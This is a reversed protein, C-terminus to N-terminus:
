WSNLTHPFYGTLRFRGEAVLGDEQPKHDITATLAM